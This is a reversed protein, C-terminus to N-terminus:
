RPLEGPDQVVGRTLVATTGTLSGAKGDITDRVLYSRGGLYEYSSPDFIWETRTDFPDEMAVAIGRRGAADVSDRVVTVGPIKAAARYLAATVAPPLVSEHLAEGIYDFVEYEPSTGRGKTVERVHRLLADPDTPLGAYEDNPTAGSLGFTEGRERILGDGTGAHAPRWVERDHVQDLVRADVGAEKPGNKGDEAFVLWAVRSKVYVYRGGGTDAAPRGEAAQAIRNLLVAVGDSTAQEVPIIPAVIPSHQPGQRHRVHEVVAVGGAVVAALAGALAPLALRRPWSRVPRPTPAPTPAMTIERLFSEKLQLRRDAPLVPDGAPPLLRRLEARVDDDRDQPRATM